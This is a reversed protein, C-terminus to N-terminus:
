YQNPVAPFSLTFVGDLEDSWGKWGGTGGAGSLDVGDAKRLQFFARAPAWDSDVPELVGRQELASYVTHSLAKL